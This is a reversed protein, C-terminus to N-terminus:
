NKLHLFIGTTQAREIEGICANVEIHKKTISQHVENNQHASDGNENTQTKLMKKKVQHTHLLSTIMATKQFSVGNKM